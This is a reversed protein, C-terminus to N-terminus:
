LTAPALVLADNKGTAGDRFVGATGVAVGAVNDLKIPHLDKAVAPDDADLGVSKLLDELQLNRAYTAKLLSSLSKSMEEHVEAKFCVGELEHKLATLERAHAKMLERDATKDSAGGNVSSSGGVNSGGSKLMGFVGAFGSSKATRGLGAPSSKVTLSARRQAALRAADGGNRSRKASPGSGSSGGPTSSGSVPGSAAGLHPRGTPANLRLSARAAADSTEGADGASVGSLGSYASYNSHTTRDSMLSTSRTFEPKVAEKTGGPSADGQNRGGTNDANLAKFEPVFGPNLFTANAVHAKEKEARAKEKKEFGALTKKLEAAKTKLRTTEAKAEGLDKALRATENEKAALRRRLSAAGSSGPPEDDERTAEAALRTAADRAAEHGKAAAEAYLRAAERVDKEVGVGTEYFNGLNHAADADGHVLAASRFHRAALAHEGAAACAFGLNNTARDHGLRAARAYLRRAESLGTHGTHGVGNDEDLVLGDEHMIGLQNIAEADGAAAAAAFLALAKKLTAEKADGSPTAEADRLAAIGLARQALSSGEKALTEYEHMVFGDADAPIVSVCLSFEAFRAVHARAERGGPTKTNKTKEAARKFCLAAAELNGKKEHTEGMAVLCMVDGHTTAGKDFWQLAKDLDPGDSVGSGEELYCLGVRHYAPPYDHKNAATVYLEFAGKTSKPVDFGLRMADGESCLDKGPNTSTGAGNDGRRAPTARSAFAVNSSRDIPTEAPRAVARGDRPARRAAAAPRAPPTAKLAPSDNDSDDYYFDRAYTKPAPTLADDSSWDMDRRLM